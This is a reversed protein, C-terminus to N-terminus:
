AAEVNMALSNCGDLREVTFGKARFVDSLHTEGWDEFIVARVRKLADGAGTLALEEAGELDMKMLAVYDIGVLIDALTTTEVRVEVGGEVIGSAISAQGHLGEPVRAIVQKGATDALAKEIVIVNQLHNMALHDRLIRATVPTMEVAIVQGSDGVLQGALVTYVGINAGADVFVSGPKLHKHIASLVTPERGPLVHWLDDCRARVMFRGVGRAEVQADALLIPVQWELLKDFSLLPAALASRFLVWQDRRTVGRVQWLIIPWRGLLQVYHLCARLLRRIPQPLIAKAINRMTIESM